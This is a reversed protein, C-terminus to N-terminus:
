CHEASKMSTILGVVQTTAKAHFPLLDLNSQEIGGGGGGGGGVCVCMCVYVGRVLHPRGIRAHKEEQLRLEVGEGRGHGRLVGGDVVGKEIGEELVAPPLGNNGANM